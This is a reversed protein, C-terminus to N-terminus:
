LHLGGKRPHLAYGTCYGALHGALNCVVTAPMTATGGSAVWGALAGYAARYGTQVTAGQVTATNSLRTNGAQVLAAVALAASGVGYALPHGQKAASALAVTVAGGVTAANTNPLPQGQVTAAGQGAIRGWLNRQRTAGHAQVALLATGLALVNAPAVGNVTNTSTVVTAVYKSAPAVPATATATAPAVTAPAPAVTATNTNTNTRKAM